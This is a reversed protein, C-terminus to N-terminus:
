LYIRAVDVGLKRHLRCVLGRGAQPRLYMPVRAALRKAGLRSVVRERQSGQWSYLVSPRWEGSDASVFQCSRCFQDAGPTGAKEARDAKSADHVYKLAVATPDDAAM